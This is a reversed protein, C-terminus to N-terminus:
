NMDTKLGHKYKKSEAQLWVVHTHKSGLSEDFGQLGTWSQLEDPSIVILIFYVYIETKSYISPVKKKLFCKHIRENHQM